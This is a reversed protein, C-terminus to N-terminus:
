NRFFYGVQVGFQFGRAPRLNHYFGWTLEEYILSTVTRNVFLGLELRKSNKPLSQYTLSFTPALVIRNFLHFHDVGFDVSLLDDLNQRRHALINTMLGGNIRFSSKKKILFQYGIELPLSFHHLTANYIKETSSNVQPSQSNLRLGYYIPQYGIGTELLFHKSIYKRIRFSPTAYIRWIQDVIAGSFGYPVIEETSIKFLRSTGLGLQVGLETQSITQTSVIM